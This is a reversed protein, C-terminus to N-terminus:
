GASMLAATWTGSRADTKLGAATTLGMELREEDKERKEVDGDDRQM